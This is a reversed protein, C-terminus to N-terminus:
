PTRCTRMVTYPPSPGLADLGETGTIAPYGSTFRDRSLTQESGCRAILSDCASVRSGQANFHARIHTFSFPPLKAVGLCDLALTACHPWMYVVPVVFQLEPFTLCLILYSHQFWGGSGVGKDRDAQRYALTVRVRQWSAIVNLTLGVSSHPM